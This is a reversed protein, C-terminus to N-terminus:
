QPFLKLGFDWEPPSTSATLATLEEPLVWAMAPCDIDLEPIRLRVLQKDCAGEFGFYTAKGPARFIGSGLARADAATLTLDDEFIGSAVARLTHRFRGDLSELQVRAAMDGWTVSKAGRYWTNDAAAITLRWGKRVHTGLQQWHPAANTFPSLVFEVDVDDVGARYLYAHQADGALERAAPDAHEFKPWPGHVQGGVILVWQGPSETALRAGHLEWTAHNAAAQAARADMAAEAIPPMLQTAPEPDEATGASQCAAALLLALAFYSPNM